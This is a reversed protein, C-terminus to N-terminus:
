NCELLEPKKMCRVTGSAAGIVIATSVVGGTERVTRIYKMVSIVIEEPFTPPRGEEKRAM